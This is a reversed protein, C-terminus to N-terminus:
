KIFHGDNWWQKNGDAWEIAPGDDRHILNNYYWHKSGDKYEIAPGDERHLRNNKYWSKNGDSYEIAPGNERHLKNNKYWAQSLIKNDVEYIYAPGDVRHIQGNSNFWTYSVGLAFKEKLCYAEKTTCDFIPVEEATEKKGCLALCKSALLGVAGGSLMSMIKRRSLM